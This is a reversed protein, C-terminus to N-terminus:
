DSEDPRIAEIVSVDVWYINGGGYRPTAERFIDMDWRRGLRRNAEKSEPVVFFLYKGDPSLGPYKGPLTMGLHKSLNAPQTWSGDKRLFAVYLGADEQGTPGKNSFYVLFSGDRAICPSTEDNKTNVQRGLLEPQSYVSDNLRLRYLDYGGMGKSDKAHYYITGASDISCAFRDGSRDKEKFLSVPAGWGNDSRDVAFIDLDGTTDNDSVPRDSSFFLRTGDHSIFAGLDKYKGSFAAIEPYSWQGSRLRMHLIVMEGGGVCRFFVETGDPTFAPSFDDHLDTSIIGPAFLVPKTGPPQQGLYSGHLDPFLKEAADQDQANTIPVTVLFTIALITLLARTHLKSFVSINYICPSM